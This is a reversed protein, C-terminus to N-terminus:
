KTLLDCLELTVVVEAGYPGDEVDRLSDAPFSMSLVRGGDTRRLQLDVPDGDAGDGRATPDITQWEGDADGRVDVPFPCTNIVGVTPPDSCATLLSGLM